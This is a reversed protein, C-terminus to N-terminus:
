KTPEMIEGAHRYVAETVRKDTHRLLRSARDLDAIESAARPHIDRSQFQRIAVALIEDLEELAVGAAASRTEDFRIRLM